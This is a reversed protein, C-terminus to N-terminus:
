VPRTSTMAVAIAERLTGHWISSGILRFGTGSYNGCFSSTSKELWDLMMTDDPKCEGIGAKDDANESKQVDVSKSTLPKPTFLGSRTSSSVPISRAALFAEKATIGSASRSGIWRNFLAESSLRQLDAFTTPCDVGPVQQELSELPEQQAALAIAPATPVGFAEPLLKFVEVTCKSAIKSETDALAEQTPEAPCMMIHEGAADSVIWVRQFDNAQAVPKGALQASLSEIIRDRNGVAQDALDLREALPRHPDKWLKSANTQSISWDPEPQQGQTTLPGSLTKNHM